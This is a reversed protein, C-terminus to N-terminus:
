QRSSSSGNSSTSSSNSWKPTRKSRSTTSAHFDGENDQETKIGNKQPEVRGSYAAASREHKLFR